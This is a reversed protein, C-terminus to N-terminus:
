RSYVLTVSADNTNAVAKERLMYNKIIQKQRNTKICVFM